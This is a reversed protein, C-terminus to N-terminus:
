HSSGFSGTPLHEILYRTLLKYLHRTTNKGERISHTRNPYTMVTFQKDAAVLADILRETGQYHVNDDGTGHVILLNGELQDAYTIPSGNKYGDANDQLLGMYREQYFCNYLLQDPVPAVSIATHYLKPYRFIANLTMTGGGSWGWIGIRQSDIYPRTKIIEKVAAAQDASAQIGIQRYVFKRWARGKPAPTGRNEVSMIIYGQQTLYLNWLYRNRNWNDTVTQGAPEGYVYFLVPYKKSPDFDVPKLCWADLIAEGINVTFFEPKQPNFKNLEENFASNNELIQVSKHDKLRILETFPPTSFTNFTHIAWRSDPSINYTHFGSQNLPTVMQPKGKGDLTTRYLYSRAADHPSATFYLWGNTEDVEQVDIVDYDGSTILKLNGDTLSAIYAHKWGDRESIWLFAKGNEMWRFFENVDVWCSDQEILVTKVEGTLINGELLTNTNQQRNLRQYLIKKSNQEWELRVLYQASPDGPTNMWVTNGGSASVIGIRCTPLPTGIKPYPFSIIQPYLQTIDDIMHFIKEDHTNIQWYAIYQSDPSWISADRLNFEEEYAWDSTANIITSSGNSTLQLITQKEPSDGIYQVYLNNKYVYSVRSGDPSFKTFMMSAPEIAGGLKFLNHTNLDLVWYDGRTNRRWVRQSNTFILLHKMNNSFAYDDIALPTTQGKPVLLSASVLVSHKLTKLDYFVIDQGNKVTTSPESLTYGQKSPIWQITGPAKVTLHTNDFIRDLTFGDTIGFLNWSIFLIGSLIIFFRFRKM